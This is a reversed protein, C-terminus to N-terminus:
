LLEIGNLLADFTGAVSGDLPLHEVFVYFKDKWEIAAVAVLPGVYSTQPVAWRYGKVGDVRIASRRADPIAADISAVLQKYTNGGISFGAFQHVTNNVMVPRNITLGSGPQVAIVQQQITFVGGGASTITLRTAGPRILWGAPMTLRVDALTTPESPPFVFTAHPGETAEPVTPPSSPRASLTSTARPSPQVVVLQNNLAQWSGAILVGGTLVGVLLGLLLLERRTFGGAVADARPGAAPAGLVVAIIAPRQRTGSTSALAADLLGSPARSPGDAFQAAVERDIMPTAESM